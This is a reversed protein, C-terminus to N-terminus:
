EALHDADAELQLCWGVEPRTQSGKLLKQIQSQSTKTAEAEKYDRRCPCIKCICPTYGVLSNNQVKPSHLQTVNASIMYVGRVMGVHTDESECHCDRHVASVQWVAQSVKSVRM